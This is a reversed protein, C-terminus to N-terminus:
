KSTLLEMIDSDSLYAAYTNYSLSYSNTVVNSKLIDVYAYPSITTIAVGCKLLKNYNDTSKFRILTDTSTLLYTKIKVKKLRNHSLKDLIACSFNNLENFSLQPYGIICAKPKVIKNKDKFENYLKIIDNDNIAIVEANNKIIETKHTKAEATINEIHFIGIKNDYALTAGLNKVYDKINDINNFFKDLGIIYFVKDICVRRLALALLAPDALSSINLDIVIEAKRNEDKILGYNLTKGLISEYLAILSSNVNCRAGIYSNIYIAM